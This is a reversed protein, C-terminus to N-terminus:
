PSVTRELTLKAYEDELRREAKTSRRTAQAVDERAQELDLEAAAVGSLGEFAEYIALALLGAETIAYRVRGQITKVALRHQKYLGRATRSLAPPAPDTVRGDQILEILSWLQRRGDPNAPGPDRRLLSAGRLAKLLQYQEPTLNMPTGARRLRYPWSLTTAQSSDLLSPFIVGPYGVPVYPNGRSDFRVWGGAEAYRRYGREPGHILALGEVAGLELTALAVAATLQSAELGAYVLQEIQVYMVPSALCEPCSVRRPAPRGVHSPRRVEHTCELVLTWWGPHSTWHRVERWALPPRAM